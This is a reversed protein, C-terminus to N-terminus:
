RWQTLYTTLTAKYTKTGDSWSVVVEVKMNPDIWTFKVSRTYVADINPQCSDGTSETWVNTKDLCWLKGGVDGYSAFSIWSTDRLSRALEVAEQAFRVAQSKTRSFRAAKLSATAGVVLGTVLLLVVGVVVVIEALTQGQAKRYDKM